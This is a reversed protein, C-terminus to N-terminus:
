LTAIPLEIAFICGKGPLQPYPHRRRHGERGQPQHGSRPGTRLPRQRAARRLVDSLRACAVRDANLHWGAYSKHRGRLDLRIYSGPRESECDHGEDAGTRSRRASCAVLPKEHPVGSDIGVGLLQRDHGVIGAIGSSFPCPFSASAEPCRVRSGVRSRPPSPGPIPAWVLVPLFRLAASLTKGVSDLDRVTPVARGTGKRGVEGRQRGEGDAM